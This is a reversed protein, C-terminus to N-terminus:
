ADNIGQAAYTTRPEFEKFPMGLCVLALVAPFKELLRCGRRGVSGGVSM